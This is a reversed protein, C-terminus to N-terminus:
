FNIKFEYTAPLCNERRTTRFTARFLESEGKPRKCIYYQNEQYCERLNWGYSLLEVCHPFGSSNSHIDSLWNVDVFNNFSNNFHTGDSWLYGGKQFWYFLGIWASDNKLQLSLSKVFKMEMDNAISILNGGFGLCRRLADVWNLKRNYEITNMVKYCSSGFEVWDEDCDLASWCFFLFYCPILYLGNYIM